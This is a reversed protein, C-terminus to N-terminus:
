TLAKSDGRLYVCKTYKTHAHTHTHSPSSGLSSRKQESFLGCRRRPRFWLTEQKWNKLLQKFANIPVDSVIRVVPFEHESRWLLGASSVLVNEARSESARELVCMKKVVRCVCNEIDQARERFEREQSNVCFVGGIANRFELPQQAIILRYNAMSPDCINKVAM